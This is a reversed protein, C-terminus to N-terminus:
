CCNKDSSSLQTPLYHNPVHRNNAEDRYEKYLVSDKRHLCHFNPDNEDIDVDTLYRMDALSFRTTIDVAFLLYLMDYLLEICSGFPHHDADLIRKPQIDSLDNREMSEFHSAFYITAEYFLFLHIMCCESVYCNLQKLM